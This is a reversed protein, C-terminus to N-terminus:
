LVFIDRLHGCARRFRRQFQYSFKEKARRPMYPRDFMWDLVQWQGKDFPCGKKRWNTVTRPSIAYKKALEDNTTVVGLYEKARLKECQKFIETLVRDEEDNVDNAIAMGFLSQQVVDIAANWSRPDVQGRPESFISEPIVCKVVFYYRTHNLKDCGTSLNPRHTTEQNSSPLHNLWSTM